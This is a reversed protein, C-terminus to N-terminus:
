HGIDLMGLYSGQNQKSGRWRKSGPSDSDMSDQATMALSVVMTETVDPKDEPDTNDYLCNHSKISTFITEIILFSMM